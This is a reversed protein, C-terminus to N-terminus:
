NSVRIETMVLKEGADRFIEIKRGLQYIVVCINKRTVSTKAQVFSEKEGKEANKAGPSSLLPPLFIVLTSHLPPVFSRNGHKGIFIYVAM